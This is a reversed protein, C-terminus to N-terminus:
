NPNIYKDIIAQVTGDAILAKLAADVAEFLETNNKNLAAAYDEVEFETDLIVLGPNQSVFVKAPENDIIVCDIKGTTLALVADAGKNFREISALGEEELFWTAYLDGTTSLQVGITHFAGDAYLDDVSTIPSGEPVIVVQIGTAYSTTFLVQEKREETITLGAMAIDYKGAEISPIISDFDVHEIRLELGIKDAIAAAIEADIGVINGGQYFEYPPFEANTVMILVGDEVTMSSGSGGGCAFAAVALMAFALILSLSKIIRRM